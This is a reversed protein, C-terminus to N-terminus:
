RLVSAPQTWGTSALNRPKAHGPAKRMIAMSRADLPHDFRVGIHRADVWRIEARQAPCGSGPDIRLADGCSADAIKTLRAGRQGLNVVVARVAQDRLWVTVPHQCPYRYERYKMIGENL